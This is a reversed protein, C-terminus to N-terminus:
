AANDNAERTPETRARGYVSCEISCFARGNYDAPVEVMQTGRPEDSEFHARRDACGLGACPVTKTKGFARAWRARMEDETVQQPRRTSGKSM